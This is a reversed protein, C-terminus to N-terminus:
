NISFKILTYKWKDQLPTAKISSAQERRGLSSIYSKFGCHISFRTSQFIHHEGTGAQRTTEKHPMKIKQPTRLGLAPSPRQCSLGTVKSCSEWRKHPKWGEAQPQWQLSIASSPPHWMQGDPEAPGAGAGEASPKHGSLSCCMNMEAAGQVLCCSRVTVLCIHSPQGEWLLAGPVQAGKHWHQQFLRLQVKLKSGEM